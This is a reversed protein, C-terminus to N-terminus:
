LFKNCFNNTKNVLEKTSNKLDLARSDLEQTTLNSAPEESLSKLRNYETVLKRIIRDDDYSFDVEGQDFRNLVLEIKNKIKNAYTQWYTVAENFKVLSNQHQSKNQQKLTELDKELNAALNQLEDSLSEITATAQQKDIFSNQAITNELETKKNELKSLNSKFYYDNIEFGCNQANYISNQAKRIADRVITKTETLQKEAEADREQELKAEYSRIAEEAKEKCTQCNTSATKEKLFDVNKFGWLEGDINSIFPAFLQQYIANELQTKLQKIKLSLEDNGLEFYNLKALTQENTENNSFNNYDQIIKILEIVKAFQQNRTLSSTARDIIDNYYRQFCNKFVDNLAFKVFKNDKIKTLSLYKNAVDLLDSSSKTYSYKTDSNQLDVYSSLFENLQTEQEYLEPFLEHNNYKQSIDKKRSLITEETIETKTDLEPSYKSKYNVVILYPYKQWKMLDFLQQKNTNSGATKIFRNFAISDNHDFTLHQGNPHFLYVGVSHIKRNPNFYKYIQITSNFVYKKTASAGLKALEGTLTAVAKPFSSFGAILGMQRNVFDMVTSPKSKTVVAMSIKASILNDKDSLPMNDIIHIGDYSDMLQMAGNQESVFNYLPYTLGDLVSGQLQATIFISQVNKKWQRESGWLDTLLTNATGMNM